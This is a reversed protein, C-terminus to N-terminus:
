GLREDLHVTIEEGPEKGLRARLDAKVPLKHTGDGLAMFSSEFPQGDMTGRVKVLGRTGFYEASDPMQVYTWGGKADSKLMPATFTKDLKGTKKSVTLEERPTGEGRPLSRGGTKSMEGSSVRPGHDGDAVGPAGVYGGYKSQEVTRGLPQHSAPPGVLPTRLWMRRIRPPHLLDGPEGVVAPQPHGLRAPPNDTREGDPRRQWIHRRRNLRLQVYPQQHGIARRGTWADATLQQIMGAHQRTRRSDPQQPHVAERPPVTGEDPVVLLLPERPVNLEGYRDITRFPPTLDEGLPQSRATFPATPMLATPTSTMALPM